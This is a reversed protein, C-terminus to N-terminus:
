KVNETVCISAVENIKRFFYKKLQPKSHQGDGLLFLLYCMYDLLLCFYLCFLERHCLWECTCLKLYVEGQFEFISFMAM